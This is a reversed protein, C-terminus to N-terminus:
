ARKEGKAIEERDAAIGCEVGKAGQPALLAPQYLCGNGALALPELGAAVTREFVDLFAVDRKVQRGGPEGDVVPEPDAIDALGAESKRVAGEHRDDDGPM